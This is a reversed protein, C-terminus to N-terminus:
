WPVIYIACVVIIKMSKGGVHLLTVIKGGHSKNLILKDSPRTRTSLRIMVVTPFLVSNMLTFLSTDYKVIKFGSLVPQVQVKNLSVM